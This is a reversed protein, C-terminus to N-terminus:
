RASPCDRDIPRHVIAHSVFPVREQSFKYWRRVNDQYRDHFDANAGPTALVTM